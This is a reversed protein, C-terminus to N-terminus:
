EAVEEALEAIHEDTAREAALAAVNSELVLRAEFMQWPLFGHLAGLVSLAPPGSSVFTGAGHRSKLVGMACLFGIGARLSSRSIKLKRALEREPPLRDGPHVEGSSILSRVHEVVQM